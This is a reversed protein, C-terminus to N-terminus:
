PVIRHVGLLTGLTNITNELSEQPNYGMFVWYIPSIYPNGMLTRQYPYMWSDGSTHQKAHLTQEGLVEGAKGSGSTTSRGKFICCLTPHLCHLTVQCGFLFPHFLQLPKLKISTSKKKPQNNKKSTLLNSITIIISAISHFFSTM